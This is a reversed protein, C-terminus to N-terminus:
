LKRQSTCCNSGICIIPSQSLVALRVALRQHLRVGVLPPLKDLFPWAGRDNSKLQRWGCGFEASFCGRIFWISPCRFMADSCGELPLGSEIETKRRLTISSWTSASCVRGIPYSWVKPNAIADAGSATLADASSGVWTGVQFFIRSRVRITSVYGIQSGSISMTIAPM